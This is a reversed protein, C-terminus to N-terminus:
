LCSLSNSKLLAFLWIEVEELAAATYSVRRESMQPALAYLIEKRSWYLIEESYYISLHGWLSIIGEIISDLELSGGTLRACGHKLGHWVGLTHTPCQPPVWQSLRLPLSHIPIMGRCEHWSLHLLSPILTHSPCVKHSRIHPFCRSSSYNSLSGLTNYAPLIWM